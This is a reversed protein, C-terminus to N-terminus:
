DISPPVASMKTSSQKAIRRFKIYSVIRWPIIYGFAVTMFLAASSQPDLSSLEQRLAFRVAVVGIFAVFFGMNKKAYIQKDERVEYDTTWILPISFVVGVGLAAGYAWGPVNVDPNFLLMTGPLMFVMPILLRIGNGRIPRYMSRTRRWLILAAIAAIMVYLSSGAM